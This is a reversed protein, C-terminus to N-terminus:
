TALFSEVAELDTRLAKIEKSYHGIPYFRHQQLSVIEAIARILLEQQRIAANYVEMIESETKKTQKAM